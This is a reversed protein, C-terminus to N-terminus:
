DGHHPPVQERLWSDRDAGDHDDATDIDDSTQDPLLDDPDMGASYNRLPIQLDTVDEHSRIRPRSALVRQLGREGCRDTSEAAGLDDAVRDCV